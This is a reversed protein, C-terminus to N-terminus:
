RESGFSGGAGQNAYDGPNRRINRVEVNGERQSYTDSDWGEARSTDITIPSCDKVATGLRAVFDDPAGKAGLRCVYEGDTTHVKQQDTRFVWEAVDQPVPREKVGPAFVIRRGNFTIEFGGRGARDVLTVFEYSGFEDM